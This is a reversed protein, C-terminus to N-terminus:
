NLNQITLNGRHPRRPVYLSHRLMKPKLAGYYYSYCGEANRSEVKLRFLRFLGFLWTSSFDFKGGGKTCGSFRSTAVFVHCPLVDGTIRAVIDAQCFSVVVQAHCFCGLVPLLLVPEMAGM